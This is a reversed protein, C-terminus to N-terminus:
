EFGIQRCAKIKGAKSTHRETSMYFAIEKSGQCTVLMNRRIRGADTTLPAILPCSAVKVSPLLFHLWEDGVLDHFSIPFKLPSVSTQKRNYKGTALGRDRHCRSHDTSAAAVMALQSCVPPVSFALMDHRVTYQLFYSSKSLQSEVFATLLDSM